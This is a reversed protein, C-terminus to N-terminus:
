RELLIYHTVNLYDAAIYLNMTSTATALHTSENGEKDKAFLIVLEGTQLEYDLIESIPRRESPTLVPHPNKTYIVYNRDVRDISGSQVLQADYTLFYERYKPSGIRSFTYGPFQPIGVISTTNKPETKTTKEMPTSEPKLKKYILSCLTEHNFLCIDLEYQNTQYNYTLIRDEVKAVGYRDFAYGKIVPLYQLSHHRPKIDYTFPM